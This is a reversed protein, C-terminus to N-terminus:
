RQTGSSGPAGRVDPRTEDCRPYNSCGWFAGKRGKRPLLFGGCGSPCPHARQEDNLYPESHDCEPYGTCSLFKGRKGDRIALPRECRPCGRGEFIVPEAKPTASRRYSCEPYGSCSIFEGHKGKRLNLSRGCEPCAEDLMVAGGAKISLPVGSIDPIRANLEEWVNNALTAYDGTGAAIEDLRSEMAATYEYNMFGFVGVLMDRVAEGRETPKLPPAKRKGKKGDPEVYRQQFIRDIIAGYTAPRGIGHSELAKVLTAETYRPPPQTRHETVNGATATHAGERAVAPLAQSKEPDTDDTHDQTLSLWGPDREVRGKAVFEMTRDDIIEISALRVETVDYLAARMQCAVAREWILRYLRAADRRDTPSKLGQIRGPEIATIDFHLPRIAEHAEQASAKSRWRNPADPIMAAFGNAGLWERALGIAEDSLNPHDTRMYTILGGGEPGGSEFLAQALQMTKKPSLGMANSAAQQLTSTVYPPPPRRSEKRSEVTVVRLERLAAVREAFTRDLWHPEGNAQLPAHDWTAFWPRGETTFDLRVGFHDVPTFARIERERDVVLRVAPSQVRGASLGRCNAAKSLAPSVLFGVLRDLVRRGEQARVLGFDISRPNAVAALVARKTMETYTVRKYREGLRLVGVLHFAIAEGERDPDTAIYVDEAKAALQQLEAVTRQAKPDIEYRPRFEPPAVGLDNKPLDSIHGFSARVVWGEGLFHAVEKAKRPSEVIFLKM